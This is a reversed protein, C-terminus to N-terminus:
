RAWFLQTHGLDEGGMHIKRKLETVARAQAVWTVAFKKTMEKDVLCLTM